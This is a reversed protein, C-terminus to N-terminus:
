LKFHLVKPYACEPLAVPLCHVVKIHPNAEHRAERNVDHTAQM